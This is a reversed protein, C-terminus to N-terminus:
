RRYEIFPTLKGIKDYLRRAAANSEATLWYVCDAASADAARYVGEILARGVGAQRAAPAV